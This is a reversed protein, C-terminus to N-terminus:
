ILLQYLDSDVSKVGSFFAEAKNFAEILQPNKEIQTKTKIDIKWGTLRSALKVNEGNRGIALSLQPDEVIVLAEKNEESIIIVRLVKAPQLSRALYDKVNSFYTIVDIKEGGLEKIVQKIRIGGMGVCAGTADIKDRLSKVSMKVKSGPARVINVIEILGEKLETVENEFLRHILRPDTRSLFITLRGNEYKVYKIVAKVKDGQTYYDRSSQDYKLIIGETDKLNIIMTDNLFRLFTGVIIEGEKEKYKRYIIDTHINEIRNFFQEEILKISQRDLERFDVPLSILDDLKYEKNIKKADEESIETLEEEVEDVVDKKINLQLNYDEDFSFDLRQENINFIEIFEDELIKKMTKSIDEKSVNYIKSLNEISSKFLENDLLKDKKKKAPM